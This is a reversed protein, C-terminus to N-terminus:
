KFRSGSKKSGPLTNTDEDAPDPLQAMVEWESSEPTPMPAVEPAPAEAMAKPEPYGAVAAELEAKEDDNLPRHPLIVYFGPQHSLDYTSAPKRIAGGFIDTQPAIAPLGDMARRGLRKEDSSNWDIPAITM